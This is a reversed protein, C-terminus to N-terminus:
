MKWPNFLPDRLGLILIVGDSYVFGVIQGGNQVASSGSLHQLQTPLPLHSSQRRKVPLMRDVCLVPFSNKLIALWRLYSKEVASFISSQCGLGSPYQSHTSTHTQSFLRPVLIRTLRKITGDREESTSWPKAVAVDLYLALVHRVFRAQLTQLWFGSM